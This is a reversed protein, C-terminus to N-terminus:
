QVIDHWPDKTSPQRCPAFELCCAHVSIYKDFMVKSGFFSGLVNKFAGGGEAEGEDESKKGKRRRPMGSQVYLFQRPHDVIIARRSQLSLPYARTCDSNKSSGWSWRARRTTVGPGAQVSTHQPRPM